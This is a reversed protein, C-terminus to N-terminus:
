EEIDYVAFYVLLALHAPSSLHSHSATFCSCVQTIAAFSGLISWFNETFEAYMLGTSSM